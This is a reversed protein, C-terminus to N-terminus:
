WALIERVYDRGRSSANKGASIKANIAYICIPLNFIERRSFHYNDYFKGQQRFETIFNNLDIFFHISPFRSIKWNVQTHPADRWISRHLGSWRRPWDPLLRFIETLIRTLIMRIKIILFEWIIEGPKPIRQFNKVSSTRVPGSRRVSLSTSPDSYAKFIDSSSAWKKTMPLEDSLTTGCTRCSANLLVSTANRSSNTSSGFSHRPRSNMTKSRLVTRFESRSASEPAKVETRRAVHGASGDATRHPINPQPYEM